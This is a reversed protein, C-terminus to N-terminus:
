KNEGNTKDATKKDTQGAKEYNEQTIEGSRLLYEAYSGERTAGLFGNGEGRIQKLLWVFFIKVDKFFAFNWAYKEDSLLMDEYDTDRDGYLVLPNILGPKAIHRDNQVETLFVTDQATFPKCGIFSLRGLFVDILRPLKAFKGNQLNERAYSLLRIEKGKKGIYPTRIFVNEIEGRKKAQVSQVGFVLFLPSLLILCIGSVFFDFIRKFLWRYTICVVALLAIVDFAVIVAIGYPSNLFEDM